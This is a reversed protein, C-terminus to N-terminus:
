GKRHRSLAGATEAKEPGHMLIAGGGAASQAEGVSAAFGADGAPNMALAVVALELKDIQAIMVADPLAHDVHGRRKEGFDIRQTEFAHDRHAARDHLAR